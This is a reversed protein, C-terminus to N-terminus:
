HGVVQLLTFLGLLWYAFGNKVEVDIHYMYCQLLHGNKGEKILSRQSEGRCEVM